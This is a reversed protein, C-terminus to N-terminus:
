FSLLVDWGCFSAHGLFEGSGEDGEGREAGAVLGLHVVAVEALHALLALEDVLDEGGGVDVHDEGLDLALAGALDGELLEDVPDDGLDGLLLLGVGVGDGLLDALARGLARPGLGIADLEVIILGLVSTHVLSTARGTNIAVSAGESTNHITANGVINTASGGGLLLIFLHHLSLALPAKCFFPFAFHFLFFM